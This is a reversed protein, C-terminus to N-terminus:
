TSFKMFSKEGDSVNLVRLFDKTLYRVQLQLAQPASSSDSFRNASVAWRARLGAHGTLHTPFLLSLGAKVRPLINPVFYQENLADRKIPACQAM